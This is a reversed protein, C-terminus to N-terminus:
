MKKKNLMQVLIDGPVCDSLNMSENNLDYDDSLNRVDGLNVPESVIEKESESNTKIKSNSESANEDPAFYHSFEDYEKATLIKNTQLNIKGVTWDGYEAAAEVLAERFELVSNYREDADISMARAIVSSVKANVNTNLEHIPNLPDDEGDLLAEYRTLASYPPENTMLYYLTAGISYIDSRTSTGKARIQELPAYRMSGINISASSDKAIGFDILVVRGKPAFKINAPKIDRHIIPPTQTHLYHVINFLHSSWNVVEKTTLFSGFKKTRADHIKQLDDGEIYEMVLVQSEGLAFYEIFHPLGPHSLNKLLRSENEFTSITTQSVSLNVKLAVKENALNDHALYVKGMGGNGIPELILYRENIVTNQLFM